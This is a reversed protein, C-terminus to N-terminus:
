AEVVALEVAEEFKVGVLRSIGQEQMTIGYLRDADEMSRKNHTVLIFQTDEAFRRILGMFRGVNADDLPADVEDLICFPSPKVLYIAFLLAIATLAKEGGSLQSISNPRKGQPKAHIEIPSELPDNPDTLTLFASAQDGFLDTFIRQFNTHISEFTEFFRESATTNIEYITEQLKSEANKLDERQISLFEYREKEEEYTELALENVPGLTGIKKRLTQVEERTVAEDFEEALDVIVDPLYVDFDERINIILDNLRTQTEAMRVARQNEERILQERNRRMNRLETEVNTIADRAQRMAEEAYAVAVEAEQQVVQLAAFQTDQGERTAQASSITEELSVLGTKYEESRSILSSVEKQARELDHQLNDCRNQAQVARIHAGNYQHLAALSEKEAQFFAEEIGACEARCESVAQEAQEVSISLEDLENRGVAQSALVQDERQKLELHQQRLTEQEYTARAVLKDIDTLTHEAQALAESYLDFPVAELAAKQREVDKQRRDCLETLKALTEIAAEYQERRGLRPGAPSLKTEESGGFVIGRADAWEGTRTFFRSGPGSVAALSQAQDFTETLFCDYLLLSALRTYAPDGVRVFQQLPFAGSPLDIDYLDVPVQFADLKDLVIFSTRGKHESRLLSFAQRIEEETKVVICTGLDGLAVDLAARETEDCAFIDAVTVLDSISRFSSSGALYQVADPFEDYSSIMSELLQVEAAVADRKRESLHLTDSAETSLHQLRERQERAEGLSHRAAGVKERAEERVTTKEQLRNEVELISMELQHIRSSIRGKEQEQFELRNGLRDQERQRRIYDAEAKQEFRRADQLRQRLTEAKHRTEDRASQAQQMVELAQALAPKERALHDALSQAEEKLDVRRREAAALENRTRESDRRATELREGTLSRERELHHVAALHKNLAKQRETLGQERHVLELRLKELSADKKAEQSSAKEIQSKLQLIETTLIQAQTSLRGYEYQALLLELEHLRTKYSKYRGAKQAQRQLSRVRKGIEETLDEIRTLDAQTSDLKNLTQRRRLKYKTIGAAEEFLHRRDMANDSLIDEIMKLEIVSYAGAGMGTDMFLDVIDRLRCQVGNMVYESEGSRFLRRGLTVESYQTPLINRTNEITLLVEAMGLPRRKSTGNFVVNEMKESRLIRARQEGIVWRVADVINSKGCGNPGVIATIGADFHLVTRDAFSKFGHM